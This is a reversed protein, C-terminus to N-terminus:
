QDAAASLSPGSVSAVVGSGPATPPGADEPPQQALVPASQPVAQPRVRRGIRVPSHLEHGSDDGPGADTGEFSTPGHATTDIGTADFTPGDIGTADFSPGDIGTSDGEHRPVRQSIVKSSGGPAMTVGYLADAAEM